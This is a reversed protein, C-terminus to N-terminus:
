HTIAARRPEAVRRWLAEIEGDTMSPFLDRAADLEAAGLRGGAPRATRGISSGLHLRTDRVPARRHGETALYAERPTLGLERLEGYRAPDSLATLSAATALEPFEERLTCLDEQEIASFDPTPAEDAEGDPTPMGDGEPLASTDNTGDEGCTAIDGNETEEGIALPAEYEM